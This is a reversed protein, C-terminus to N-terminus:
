KGIGFLKAVNNSALGSTNFLQHVREAAVADFGGIHWDRIRHV